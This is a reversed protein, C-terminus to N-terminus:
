EDLARAGQQLLRTRRPTSGYANVLNRPSLANKSVQLTRLGRFFRDMIPLDAASNETFAAKFITNVDSEMLLKGSAVVDGAANYSLVQPNATIKM